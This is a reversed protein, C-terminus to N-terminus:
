QERTSVVSISQGDSLRRQGAVVVREGTSLGSTIQVRDGVTAGLAVERRQARGDAAVFVVRARGEEVVAHRPVLVQNRYNSLDIEVRALMGPRLRGSANDVAVEVPFSRSQEDAEVGITKITGTFSEAPLADLTVRVEEGERMFRYDREPVSILALVTEIRLVEALLGGPTVYEGEEVAKTKIRGAIPSRVVSKGLQDEAQQLNFYSVQRQNLRQDLEAATILNRERLTEGREFEAQALNYNAEALNRQITLQETAINVLVEGAEVADGTNFTVREIIGSIESRLEVRRDPQLDGVYTTTVAFDQPSLALLEVDAAPAQNGGNSSQQAGAPAGLALLAVLAAAAALRYVKSM